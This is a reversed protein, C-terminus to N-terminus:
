TSRVARVADRVAPYLAHAWIRYGDASPHFGDVSITNPDARFVASTRLALDVAVGGAQTVAPGQAYCIRRGLWGVIQRLPPGLARAAGLDPCTGVVVAVGADTLRAVADGLHCAAEGPDALSTADNLGALIVAVDPREGLLARSIQTDLNASRTGSVAVSSLEIRHGDGALLEALHGGVSDEVNRVGVGAALADGLMTLRVTPAAPDGVAARIGPGIAPSAHRRLKAALLEVGLVGILGVAIAAASYGIGRGLRRVASM